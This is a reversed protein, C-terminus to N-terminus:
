KVEVAELAAIILSAIEEAEIMRARYWEEEDPKAVKMRAYHDARDLIQKKLTWMAEGGDAVASVGASAIHNKDNCRTFSVYNPAGCNECRRDEEAEQPPNPGDRENSYGHRINRWERGTSRHDLANMVGDSLIMQANAKIDFPLHLDAIYAIAHVCTRVVAYRDYLSYRREINETRTWFDAYRTMLESPM